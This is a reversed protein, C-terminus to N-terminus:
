AVRPRDDPTPKGDGERPELIRYEGDITMSQKVGQQRRTNRRVGPFLYYITAAVLMVPALIMLAGFALVAIVFVLLLAMLITLWRIWGSYARFRFEFPQPM